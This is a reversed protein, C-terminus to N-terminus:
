RTAGRGATHRSGATQQRRVQAAHGLLRHEVTYREAYERFSRVGPFWDIGPRTGYEWVIARDRLMYLAYREAFGPRPPRAELYATGFARALETALADGRDLYIATLRMLDAEGDGFYYEMLDFLGTVRWEDRAREVAVNGPNYDNMVFCPGFEDGVAATGADIVEEAWAIDDSTTKGHERATALWNRTDSGLWERLGGAFPRITDSALDYAGAFPWALGHMADLNCGLARAIALHDLDTLRDDLPSIGPLRPMLLYPWGFIEDSEDLLYPWAVPAQTREHLLTSGFREKPFQWAYHPSGRLVYRGTTSSVFVNQGFLGGRVPEADVFDGLGFRELAAQFQRPAISGLRHSYTRADADKAHERM